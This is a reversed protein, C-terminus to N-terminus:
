ELHKYLRGLVQQNHRITQTKLVSKVNRFKCHSRISQHIKTTVGVCIKQKFYFKPIMGKLGCM